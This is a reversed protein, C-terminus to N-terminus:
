LAFANHKQLGPLVPAGANAVFRWTVQGDIKYGVKIQGQSGQDWIAAIRGGDALQDVLVAPLHQIAGELIIVDFPAHKAAGDAIPGEMVAVNLLGESALTATAEAVMDADEEVAVVAEALHSLVAASYGLGCGLDLILDTTQIDLADLMKAFSRPDLVFRGAGLDVLTDVYAAEQKSAPVFAERRTKLMADIIPFKTVDSPRVQTDVMTTRRAAFDTM